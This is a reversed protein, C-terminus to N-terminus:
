FFDFNKHFLGIIPKSIKPKSGNNLFIMYYILENKGL